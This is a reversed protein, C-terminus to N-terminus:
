GRDLKLGSKAVGRSVTGYTAQLEQLTTGETAVTILGVAKKQKNISHKVTTSVNVGPPASSKINGALRYANDMITKTHAIRVAKGISKSDLVVMAKDNM